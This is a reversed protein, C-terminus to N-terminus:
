TVVSCPPAKLEGVVVYYTPAGLCAFLQITAMLYLKGRIEREDLMIAHLDITEQPRIASRPTELEGGVLDSADDSGKLILDLLLPTFGDLGYEAVAYAHAVKALMRSFLGPNIKGFSVGKAGHKSAYKEIYSQVDINLGYLGPAALRSGDIQPLKGSLLRPLDFSFLGVITPYDDIPLNHTAYRGEFHVELALKKQRVKKHRSRMGLKARIPSFMDRLCRLEVGGTVKSCPVCSAEPLTREGGLGFPVIHERTLNQKTGCYICRGVPKYGHNPDHTRSKTDFPIM